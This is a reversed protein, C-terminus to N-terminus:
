TQIKSFMFYPVHACDYKNYGLANWKYEGDSDHFMQDTVKNCHSAWQLNWQFTNVLPVVLNMINNHGSLTAKIDRVMETENEAKNIKWFSKRLIGEEELILDLKLGKCWSFDVM